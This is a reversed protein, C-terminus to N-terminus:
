KISETEVEIVPRVGYGYYYYAFNYNSGDDSIAWIIDNSYASGIWYFYNNKKANKDKFLEPNDIEEYKLLRGKITSPLGYTQLREVYKTVYTSLKSNEDYVYAYPSGTYKKGEGTNGAWYTSNSFGVESPTEGSRAQRYIDGSQDEIKILNNKALLLTKESDTSLVIFCEQSDNPGFCKESGKTLFSPREDLELKNRDAKQNSNTENKDLDSVIYTYEDEQIKVSYQKLTGEIFAVWGITENNQKIDQVETASENSITVSNVKELADNKANKQRTLEAKAGIVEENEEINGNKVTSLSDNTKTIIYDDFKLSYATVYGNELKVWSEEDPKNGSVNIILEDGDSNILKGSNDVIYVGDYLESTAGSQFKSLSVKTVADKYGYASDQAAGKKSNEIINLIIPVTIVAIIALIVIIALLEILTFANKRKM